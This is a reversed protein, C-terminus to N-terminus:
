IAAYLFCMDDVAPDLMREQQFNICVFTDSCLYNSFLCLHHVSFFDHFDKIFVNNSIVAPQRLRDDFTLTVVKEISVAILYEIHKRSPCDAADTMTMGLDDFGDLLLGGLKQMNVIREVDFVLTAKGLKKGLPGKASFRKEAVATGLGVFSCHLKGPPMSGFFFIFVYGTLATKVASRKSSDGGSGLGLIVFTEKRHKGPKLINRKVVNLCQLLNKGVINGGYHDLGYLAFATDINCACLEHPSDPLKAIFVTGQHYEILNLGPHAPGALPKTKLMVIDDRINYRHGLGKATTNSYTRHHRAGINSSRQDGTGMSGREAAIRQCTGCTNGDDLSDLFFVEDFIRDFHTFVGPPFDLRQFLLIRDDIMNAALSQHDTHLKVTVPGFDDAVAKFLAQPDVTCM